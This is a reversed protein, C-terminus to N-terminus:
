VLVDPAAVVLRPRGGDAPAKGITAPGQGGRFGSRAARQRSQETLKGTEHPGLEVGGAMARRDGISLAVVKFCYGDSHAPCGTRIDTQGDRRAGM